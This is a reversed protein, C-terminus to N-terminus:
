QFWTGADWSAPLEIPRAARKCYQAVRKQWSDSKPAAPLESAAAGANRGSREEYQRALSGELADEFLAVEEDLRKLKRNVIGIARNWQM